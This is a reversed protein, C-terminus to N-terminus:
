FNSSILCRQPELIARRSDVSSHFLVPANRIVVAGIQERTEGMLMHAASALDDALNTQTVRVKRGYLDLKSRYDHVPEFGSLGIALGITGLRLPTIRSDVIEVGLHNVGKRAFHQRVRSASKDSNKPWLTAMGRPSNKLDVGANATLIGDKITLLFGRMGGLICDAEQLVISALRRDITWRESLRIAKASVRVTDLKLTRNECFSVIKSALALVDGNRLGLDKRRLARDVLENLNQGQNVLPFGVPLLTISTHQRL